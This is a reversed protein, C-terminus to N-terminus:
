TTSITTSISLKPLMINKEHARNENNPVCDDDILVLTYKTNRKERMQAFMMDTSHVNHSQTCTNKCKLM